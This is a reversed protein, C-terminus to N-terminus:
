NLNSPPDIDSQVKHLNLTLLNAYFFKIARPPNQLNYTTVICIAHKPYEVVPKNMVIHPFIQSHLEPVVWLFNLNTFPTAEPELYPQSNHCM